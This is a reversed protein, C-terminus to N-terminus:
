KNKANIWRSVAQRVALMAGEMNTKIVESMKRHGVMGLQKAQLDDGYVFEAGNAKNYLVSSYGGGTKRYGWGASISGTRNERGPTIEGSKIKAMVYRRQKDSKFTEGYASARSVYKYSVIHKLGHTEDGVLYKSGEEVAIKRLEVPISKFFAQLKEIGRISTSIM